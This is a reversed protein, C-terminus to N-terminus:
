FTLVSSDPIVVINSHVKRRLIQQIANLTAGISSFCSTCAGQYVIIVEYLGKIEKVEVGGQDLAIYPEIDQKIVDSVLTLKTDPAYGEWLQEHPSIDENGVSVPSNIYPDQIQIDECFSLADFLASLAYNISSSCSAPVELEKDEKFSKEVLDATIRSAQKYNKRTVLECIVDASAVFGPDGCVQFTAKSIIGDVKDVLLYLRIYVGEEFSGDEGIVLREMKADAEAQTIVGVHAPHIIREKISSYFFVLSQELNM